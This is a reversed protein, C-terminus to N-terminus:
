VTLGVCLYVFKIAVARGNLDSRGEFIVGFSGEGICRIVHYHLGVLTPVEGAISEPKRM